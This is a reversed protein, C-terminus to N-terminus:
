GTDLDTQGRIPLQAGDRLFLPIRDLPATVEISQGGGFAKDTWADHWTAGAPLYVSRSRAGAELVPAVLLDPGFMFADDVLWATEDEPFDFLLPRMPPIGREHAAQMQAMIYPRLRERLFLLERILGYAEEGFSWVENPGGTDRWDRAPERFGHLRFIPCFAGYQFWRVILERFAPSEPDGGHFGGIDTTWWPIGSLAVNLGARVQDQLAEFTSAVDGSWVATGYRQSGAWASRSLSIIETEGESRMGEYFGQAHLLPYINTVARGDGLHYRLNDPDMPYLEPEDADLWWVRIGHRYYGRRVKDWVYRRAEPHTADYFHLYVPGDPETDAFITHAAAGRANGVLWGREEMIAFSESRANITPWISVMVKVGMEELERVMAAPDPWFKPDFQWDGQLTGHFLDVVIISLPLGRGKHERAVSLLEGQSRYRLKCQWFGTAWEPFLSPHGTAEAYHEMIEAPTDGAALWYDLQPTAEAVWCTGNTGLEVRGAAPNNWLFGYGRSSFLFPICVETNRQLLEVVAGKQDLLGHQHQGLGYFREDNYAKFRMELHYLAGGVPRFHRAGPMVFHLRQEALLEAGTESHVFRIRGEPYIETRERALSVDATLRGNRISASDDDITIQASASRAPLLAGPWDELIAAAPNARVRLSDRGWPEIRVTQGCATFVLADSERQFQLM